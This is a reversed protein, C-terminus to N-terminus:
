LGVQQNHGILWQEAECSIMAARGFCKFITSREATLLALWGIQSCARLNATCMGSSAKSRAIVAIFEDRKENIGDHGQKADNDFM